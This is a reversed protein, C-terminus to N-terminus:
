ILLRKRYNKILNELNLSLTRYCRHINLTLTSNPLLENLFSFLEDSGILIKSMDFYKIEGSRLLHSFKLLGNFSLSNESIDITELKMSDLCSVLDDINSDILGISGLKLSKLSSSRLCELFSEFNSSNVLCNNSVDLFELELDNILAILVNISKSGLKNDRVSLKKIKKSKLLSDALIKFCFDGLENGSVDLDILNSSAFCELDFCVDDDESNLLNSLSSSLFPGLAYRLCNRGINLSQLTQSTNLLNSLAKLGQTGFSNNYLNLSTLHHSSQLATIIHTSSVPGLHLNALSIYRSDANKIFASVPISTTGLLSYYHDLVVSKSPSDSHTTSNLSQNDNSLESLIGDVSTM